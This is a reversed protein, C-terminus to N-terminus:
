FPQTERQSHTGGVRLPKTFKKSLVPVDHGVWYGGLRWSERRIALGSERMISSLNTLLAEVEADDATETNLCYELDGMQILVALVIRNLVEGHQAGVAVLHM